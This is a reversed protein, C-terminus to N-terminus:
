PPEGSEPDEQSSEPASGQAEGEAALAEELDPYITFQTDLRMVALLKEIRESPQVLILKRGANKFRDLYGVLEGLGTSDLYNIRALDLIVHSSEEYLIRKLTAALFEASEGLKIVGEVHLITLGGVQRKNVFM